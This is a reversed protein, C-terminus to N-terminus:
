VFVRTYVHIRTYVHTRTYQVVEQLITCFRSGTALNKKGLLDLMVIAKEM